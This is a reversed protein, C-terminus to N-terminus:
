FPCDSKHHSAVLSVSRCDVLLMTLFNNRAIPESDQLENISWAFGEYQIRFPRSITKINIFFFYKMCFKNYRKPTFNKTQYISQM